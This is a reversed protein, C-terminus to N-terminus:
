AIIWADITVRHLERRLASCAHDCELPLPTSSFIAARQLMGEMRLREIKTQRNMTAEEGAQLLFSGSVGAAGAGLGIPLCDAGWRGDSPMIGM